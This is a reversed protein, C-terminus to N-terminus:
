AQTRAPPPQLEPDGFLEAIPLIFGPLVTGGDLTDAHTLTRFKDHATYVEVTELRPEILWVLRTGATFYEGVKRDIAGPRESPSIVEVALDPAFDCVSQLQTSGAPVTTWLVFSTDPSRISGSALRYLVDAGPVFGLRTQRNWLKVFLALTTAVISEHSGLNKRVLTGDILEILKEGRAILDTETATGPRPTWLIDAPDIDGLARLHDAFTTNDAPAAVEAPLETLTPTM